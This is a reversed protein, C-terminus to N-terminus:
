EFTVDVTREFPMVRYSRTGTRADGGDWVTEFRRTEGPDVVARHLDPDANPDSAWQGGRTQWAVAGVFEAPLDGTNEVTFSFTGRPDDADLTPADVSVLEFSPRPFREGDATAEFVTEPPTDDSPPQYGIRVTDGLADSPVEFGVRFSTEEGPNPRASRLLTPPGTLPAGEDAYRQLVPALSGGEISFGEHLASVFDEGTNRATFNAVVWESGEPAGLVNVDYRTTYGGVESTTIRGFPVRVGDLTLELGEGVAAPEGVAAVRPKTTVTVAADYGPVEFRYEGRGALTVSLERTATEGAPIEAIRVRQSFGGPGEVANVVKDFSSPGDGDNRVTVTLTFSEGVTVTEPADLAVPGGDGGGAGDGGDTGDGGDSGDGGDGGDGGSGGLGLCGATTGTGVTAAAVLMARRGVGDTVDDGDSMATPKATPGSATM